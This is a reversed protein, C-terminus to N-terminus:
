RPCLQAEAIAITRQYLTPQLSNTNLFLAVQRRHLQLVSTAYGDIDGMSGYVTGCSTSGIMLGLGYSMGPLGAATFFAVSGPTPEKMQALLSRSLLRGGLLAALFRDADGATGVMAAAAGAASASTRTTVDVAPGRDSPLPSAFAYGRAQRPVPTATSPFSTGRLGLRDILRSHVEYAISHGTLQRVVEGLVIYNTSSYFFGTGPAFYPPHQVAMAILQAPTYDAGPDFGTAYSYDFLGSSHNLLERVTIKDANPVPERLLGAIPQDLALRHEQVLELVVTAVFTKTVSAIRFRDDARMRRGAPIDALGAAARRVPRGDQSVVAAAGPIRDVEVLKGLEARLGPRPSADASARAPTPGAVMILAAVVAACSKVWM